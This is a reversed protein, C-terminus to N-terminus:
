AQASQLCAKAGELVRARLLEALRAGVRRWTFESASRAAAEGMRRREASDRALRRLAEVWAANDFPDIVLGGEGHRIVRGAGMPSVLCPLGCGAAEYTVQPGGEEHTPFVFVDAAAYAAAMDSVYGLEAVDSRALIHACRQRVDDDIHGAIHLRGDVGAQGWADLLLDLGKRVIGLGVFLFVPPREPRDIGIAGRLREPSWGYSTELIREAGIGARRLSDAVFPNPATVFDCLQMQAEERDMDEPLCWGDPLPRGLRAFAPVLVDRCTRGMCNIREAILIAGRQKAGEILESDYPPWVYMLDGRQVARVANRYVSRRQWAGSVKLKCLARWALTSFVPRHYERRFDPPSSICWLQKRLSTPSLHDFIEHLTYSVGSPVATQGIAAHLTRSTMEFAM